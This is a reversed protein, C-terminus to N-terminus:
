ARSLLIAAVCWLLASSAPAQCHQARALGSARMVSLSVSGEALGRPSRVLFAYEGADAPTVSRLTLAAEHCLPSSGEQQLLFM